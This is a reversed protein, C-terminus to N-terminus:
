YDGVTGGDNRTGLRNWTTWDVNAGVFKVAGDALLIHVGGTHLSRAGHMGRGDFNCGNCHFSVNPYQSNPTLLTGFVTRGPQGRFWREGVGNGNYNVIALAAAGWANVNAETIGTGFGVSEPAANGGAIGSGNRVTALNKQSTISGTANGQATVIESALIVNSTGDLIDAIKCPVRRNVVGNEDAFGGNWLKNSGGNFAYNNYASLNNPASDSPCLFPPIKKRDLLYPANEGASVTGDGAARRNEDIAQSVQSYLASQDIYPLIMAHASYTRWGDGGAGEISPGITGRPFLSFTDHYNHMALGLQKLHNKCQTRRASERAQQVAPLLLAILVAIIAIVVLLEILTFGIRRKRFSVEVKTM